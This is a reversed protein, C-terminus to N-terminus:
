FIISLFPDPIIRRVDLPQQFNEKDEASYKENEIKNKEDSMLM